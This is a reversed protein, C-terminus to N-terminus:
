KELDGLGSRGGQWDSTEWWIMSDNFSSFVELVLGLWEGLVALEVM